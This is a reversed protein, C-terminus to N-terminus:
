RHTAAFTAGTPRLFHDRTPWVVRLPRQYAQFQVWVSLDLSSCYSMTGRLKGFWFNSLLVRELEVLILAAPNSFCIFSVARETMIFLTTRYWFTQRDERVPARM